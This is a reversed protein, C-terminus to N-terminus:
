NEKTPFITKNEEANENINSLLAIAIINVFIGYGGLVFLILIMTAIIAIIAISAILNEM